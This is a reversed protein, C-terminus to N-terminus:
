SGIKENAEIPYRKRTSQYPYLPMKDARYFFWEQKVAMDFLIKNNKDIERIHEPEGWAILVNQHNNGVLDIDSTIRSYLTDDKYERVKKGKWKGKKGSIKYEVYRSGISSTDKDGYNDFMAITGNKRLLLAHQNKPGDVAADGMVRYPTLSPLRLFNLEKYPVGEHLTVLEDNAMWWLLRWESYDVAIVAQQRLSFYMIDTKEDYVLSNAHAWDVAINNGDEQYINDTDFIIKNMDKIENRNNNTMIIDKFLSVFTLDRITNGERDLEIVADEVGWRSQTLLVYKDNIELSDHHTHHRKKAKYNMREQGLLDFIGNNNKILIENNDEYVYHLKHNKQIYRIDGKRDYAILTYRDDEKDIDKLLHSVFYFDQNKTDPKELLDEHVKASKFTTPLTIITINTEEDGQMITITNTYNPYLGHIPFEDGYAKPFVYEISMGETKGHIKLHLPSENSVTKYIASLPTIQSPNLIVKGKLANSNVNDCAITSFITIIIGIKWINM